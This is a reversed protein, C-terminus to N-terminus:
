PLIFTATYEDTHFKRTKECMGDVLVIRSPLAGYHSESPETLPISPWYLCTANPLHSILHPMKRFDAVLM